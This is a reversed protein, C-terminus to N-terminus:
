GDSDGSHRLGMFPGEPEMYLFWDGATAGCRPCVNAWHTADATTSSRLKLVSPIPEPPRETEVMGTRPWSVVPFPSACKYCDHPAAQYPPSAIAIGLSAALRLGAANRQGCSECTPRKRQPGGRAIPAWARPQAIVAEADLEIWPVSLQRAKGEDVAHTVRIEVAGVVREANVFAVDAVLGDELRREIVADHFRALLPEPVSEYCFACDTEITPAQARGALWDNVVEAILRKASDHLATEPSCGASAVHALHHARIEGARVVLPALCAPCRYERGKEVLTREVLRGDADLGLPVRFTQTQKGM